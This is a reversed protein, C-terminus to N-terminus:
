FLLSFHLSVQPSQGQASREFFKPDAEVVAQAWQANRQLLDKVTKDDSAIM